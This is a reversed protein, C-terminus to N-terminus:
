NQIAGVDKGGIQQYAAVWYINPFYGFLHFKNM